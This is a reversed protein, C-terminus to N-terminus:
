VIEDLSLMTAGFEPFKEIQETPMQLLQERLARGTKLIKPTIVKEVITVCHSELERLRDNNAPTM